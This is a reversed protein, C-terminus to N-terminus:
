GRARHELAKNVAVAGFCQIAERVTQPPEGRSIEERLRERWANLQDHVNAPNCQLAKVEVTKRWKPPESVIEFGIVIKAGNDLVSVSKAEEGWERLQAACSDGLMRATLPPLVFSM